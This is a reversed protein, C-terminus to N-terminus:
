AGDLYRRSVVYMLLIAKQAPALNSRAPQPIANNIAAANSNLFDDLADVAARLDAKTVGCELADDSFRRMADSWIAVRAASNLVAM